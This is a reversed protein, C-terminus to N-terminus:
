KSDDTLNSMPRLTPVSRDTRTFSTNNIKSRKMEETLNVNVFSSHYSATERLTSLRINSDSVSVFSQDVLKRFFRQDQFPRLDSYMMKRTIDDGDSYTSMFLDGKAGAVGPM